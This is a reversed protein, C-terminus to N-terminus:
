LRSLLSRESTITTVDAGAEKLYSRWWSQLRRWHANSINHTPTVGAMTVSIGSLDAILDLERAKRLDHEDPINREFNFGDGVQQADTLLILVPKRAKRFLQKQSVFRLFGFLDTQQVIQKDGLLTKVSRNWCDAFSQSAAKQARTLAIGMPGPEEPMEALFIAEQSSEARSHILFIEIKDGLRAKAVTKKIADFDKGLENERGATIDAAIITYRHEIEDSLGLEKPLAKLNVLGTAHAGIILAAIATSIVLMKTFM